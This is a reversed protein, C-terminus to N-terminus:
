YPELCEIGKSDIANDFLDKLLDKVMAQVEGTSLNPENLENVSSVTRKTPKAIKVEIM